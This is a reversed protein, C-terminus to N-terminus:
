TSELGHLQSGVLHLKGKSSHSEVMSVRCKVVLFAIGVVQFSTVLGVAVLSAFGGLLPLDGHSLTKYDSDKAPM